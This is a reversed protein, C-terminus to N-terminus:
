VIHRVYLKFSIVNVMAIKSPLINEAIWVLRDIQNLDTLCLVCNECSKKM